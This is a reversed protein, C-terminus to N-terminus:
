REEAIERLDELGAVPSCLELAGVHGVRYQPHSRKSADAVAVAERQLSRQEMVARPVVQQEEFVRVDVGQAHPGARLV